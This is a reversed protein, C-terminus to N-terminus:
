KVSKKLDRNERELEEIRDQYEAVIENRANEIPDIKRTSIDYNFRYGGHGGTSMGRSWVRMGKRIDAITSGEIILEKKENNRNMEEYKEIYSPLVDHLAFLAGLEKVKLKVVVVDKTGDDKEKVFRSGKVIGWGNWKKNSGM